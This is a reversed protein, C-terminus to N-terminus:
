TARSANSPRKTGADEMGFLAFCLAVCAVAAIVAGRFSAVIIILPAVLSTLTLGAANAASLSALATAASSADRDRAAIPFFVGTFLDLGFYYGFLSLVIVAGRAPLLASLSALLVALGSYGLRHLPIHVVTIVVGAVISGVGMVTFASAIEAATSGGSDLWDALYSTVLTIPTTMLFSIAHLRFSPAHTRGTRSSGRSGRRDSGAVSSRSDAGGLVTLAASCLLAATSIGVYFLSFGFSDVVVRGVYPALFVGSAFTVKVLGAAINARPHGMTAILQAPIRGLLAFFGLGVISRALVFGLMTRSTAVLLTGLVFVLASGVVVRRPETRSLARAVPYNLIGAIFYGMNLLAFAEADVGLRAVVDLALPMVGAMELTVVVNLVLLAGSYAIM